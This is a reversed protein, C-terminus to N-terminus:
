GRPRALERRGRFPRLVGAFGLGTGDHYLAPFAAEIEDGGLILRKLVRDADAAGALLPEAGRPDGALVDPRRSAAM